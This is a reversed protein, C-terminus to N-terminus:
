VTSRSELYFCLRLQTTKFLERIQQRFLSNKGDEGVGKSGLFALKVSDQVGLSLQLEYKWAEKATEGSSIHSNCARYPTDAMGPGLFGAITPRM